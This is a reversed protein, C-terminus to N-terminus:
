AASGVRHRQLDFSALIPVLVLTVSVSFVLGWSLTLMMDALMSDYGLIGYASPLLGAVTTVTTLFVARLRTASRAAIERFLLDRDALGAQIGELRDILLISGNVVIGSLGLAGVVTFFGWTTNGHALFVYVGASWAPIIATMVILPRVASNFQIALIIYIILLVGVIAYLFFSSADRTERIEGDFVFSTGPSEKSLEPFVTAELREAMELPTVSADTKIDALVRLVRRQNMRQIESIAPERQVKVLSSLPVQYGERNSTPVALVRNIDNRAEPALRLRVHREENDEYYSYLRIGALVARLTSELEAMEIDLRGLLERSPQLRYEFLSGPRDIEVYGIQPDERLKAALKEAMTARLADDNETVLIEIASGSGSGFRQAAIRKTRFGKIDKLKEKVGAVLRRTGPGDIKDEDFEVRVSVVNEEESPRYRRFGVQTRVGVVEKGVFPMVLKEIPIALRATEYLKTEPPAEAVVFFNSMQERPFLSFNLTTLFLVVAGAVFAAFCGLAKWRHHLTRELNAAYWEEFRAFWAGPEADPETAAEHAKSPNAKAFRSLVIRLLLFPDSRLHSPLVLISELLSGVLVMAVIPPITTTLLAFDGQFALLPLFAAITTLVSSTIPGLVETTGQISAEMIGLGRARLRAVNESVVIADDVLMGMAIIVGALSMNNITYGLLNALILAFLFSVPIGLAVWFATRASLFISLVIMILVLGIVANGLILSLRNRVDYSEDDMLEARLGPDHRQAAALFAKVEQHVIDVASLIGTTSSKVINLEVGEYGNVRIFGRADEFGFRVDAVDSLQITPGLFSARLPVKPFHEPKELRGDLRVQERFPTEMVGLPRDAHGDVLARRVDNLGIRNAFLASPRPTVHVEEAFYSKRDISSIENRRLLRNEFSRVNHQLKRRQEDNLFSVGDYYFLVDIVAKQSTKRHFVQPPNEVEVPLVVRMIRNQIETVALETNKTGRRLELSIISSGRKSASQIRRIHELGVLEHEMPQTIAQEVEEPSAGPYVTTISVTDFSFDPLEEKRIDYASYVGAAVIGCLVLNGLFHREVFFAILRHM